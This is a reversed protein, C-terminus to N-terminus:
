RKQEQPGLQEEEELNAKDPVLRPEWVEPNEYHVLRLEPGGSGPRGGTFFTLNVGTGAGGSDEGSPELNEAERRWGGVEGEPSSCLRGEEDEPRCVSLSSLPLLSLQVARNPELSTSNGKGKVRQCKHKVM